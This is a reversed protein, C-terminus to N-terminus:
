CTAFPLSGPCIRFARPKAPDAKSLQNLAEGIIQFKREVATHIVQTETYTKLDIGAVFELITDAAQRV